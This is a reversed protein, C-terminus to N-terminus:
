LELNIGIRTVHTRNYKSILSVSNPSEPFHFIQAVIYYLNNYLQQMKAVTFLSAIYNYIWTANQYFINWFLQYTIDFHAIPMDM